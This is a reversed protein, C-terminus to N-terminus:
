GGEIELGPPLSLTESGPNVLKVEGRLSIERAFQVRGKIALRRCAALSPPGDPFCSEFDDVLRYFEPDLRVVPVAGAALRVTFDAELRYADSRVALLDDTTKVPAFRRRPVRIAQAGPFVEIASGMATELQLVEPADPRRPDVPKRNIILPLAFPRDRNKLRRDLVELDLWLSNTNFYRYRHFDQFAELEEGPCQAAERLMLSGDSRRRALHGGKRDAATREAVEMMFPVRREVFYGLIAPDLGAGLNDANSVFAYRFGKELLSALIGSSAFASYLDGHGPPCWELAPNEPWSVPLFTEPDLKPVRHQIFDLPLDVKCLGPYKELLALSDARTAPSNMLLLPVGTAEAQRAILDLFTFKEKVVLLSKAKELGMGTGLGGNLKILVTQSMVRHGAAAFEKGLEEADPLQEVPEIDRESIKGDDGALLRRYYLELMATALEPMGAWRMRERLRPFKERFEQEWPESM